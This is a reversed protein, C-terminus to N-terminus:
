KKDNITASQSWENPFNLRSFESDRAHAAADYARAAEEETDFNGLWRYKGNEDIGAEWLRTKRRSRLTVGIYCSSTPFIRTKPRNRANEAPTAGRLDTNNLRNNHVHDVQSKIESTVHLRLHVWIHLNVSLTADCVYGQCIHLTHGQLLHALTSPVATEYGRGLSGSLPLLTSDKPPNTRLDATWEDLKLLLLQRSICIEGDPEHTDFLQKDTTTFRCHCVFGPM